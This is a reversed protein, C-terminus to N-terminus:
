EPLGFKQRFFAMREEDTMSTDRVTRRAEEALAAERQLLELKAQDIGLQQQRQGLKAHEIVPRILAVISEARVTADPRTALNAALVRVLSMLEDLQPVEHRSAHERLQRVAQAGSTINRLITQRLKQANHKRLWRWLVKPSAHVGHLEELKRAAAALTIEEVCLWQDLDAEFPRLNIADGRTKRPTEITVPTDM